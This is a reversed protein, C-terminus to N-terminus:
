RDRRESDSFGVPAPRLRHVGDFLLPTGQLLHSSREVLRSAGARGERQSARLRQPARSARRLAQAPEGRRTRLFAEDPQRTTPLLV